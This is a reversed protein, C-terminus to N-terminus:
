DSGRTYVISGNLGNLTWLWYFSLASATSQELHRIWLHEIDGPYHQHLLVETALTGPRLIHALLVLDIISFFFFAEVRPTPLLHM